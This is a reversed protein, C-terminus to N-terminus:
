ERSLFKRNPCVTSIGVGSRPKLHVVAPPLITSQQFIVLEDYPMIEHILVREIM